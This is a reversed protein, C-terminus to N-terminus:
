IRRQKKKMAILAFTSYIKQSMAVVKINLFLTTEIFLDGGHMANIVIEQNGLWESRWFRGFGLM